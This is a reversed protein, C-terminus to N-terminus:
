AQFAMMASDREHQNTRKSWGTIRKFEAQKKKGQPKVERVDYGLRRLGEVLLQAERTVQGVNRAIKSLTNVNTGEAKLHRFTPALHAVEVIVKAEHIGFVQVRDIVDWFKLTDISVFRRTIRDWVAFGSEVGPDIGIVFRPRYQETSTNM